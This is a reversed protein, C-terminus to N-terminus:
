EPEPTGPKPNPQLNGVVLVKEGDFLDVAESTRCSSNGSKLKQSLVDAAVAQRPVDVSLVQATIWHLGNTTQNWCGSLVTCLLSFV